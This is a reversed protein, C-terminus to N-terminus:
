LDGVHIALQSLDARHELHEIREPSLTPTLTRVGQVFHEGRPNIRLRSANPM